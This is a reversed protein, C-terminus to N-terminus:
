SPPALLNSVTSGDLRAYHSFVKETHIVLIHKLYLPPQKHSPKIYKKKTKRILFFKHLLKEFSTTIIRICPFFYYNGLSYSVLKREGFFFSKKKGLSNKKKVNDAARTYMGVNMM